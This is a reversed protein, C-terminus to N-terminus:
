LRKRKCARAPQARVARTKCVSTITARCMHCVPVPAGDDETGCEFRNWCEGCMGHGCQFRLQPAANDSACVFCGTDCEADAGADVADGADVRRQNYRWWVAARRPAAMRGAWTDFARWAAVADPSPDPHATCEDRLCRRIAHICRDAQVFVALLNVDLADCAAALLPYTTSLHDVVSAAFFQYMQLRASRTRDAINEM